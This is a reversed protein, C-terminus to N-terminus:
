MMKTTEDEEEDEDHLTKTQQNRLFTSEEGVIDDWTRMWESDSAERKGRRKESWSCLFLATLAVLCIFRATRM